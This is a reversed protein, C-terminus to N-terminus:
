NNSPGTKVEPNDMKGSWIIRWMAGPVKKYPTHKVQAVVVRGAILIGVIGFISQIILLAVLVKHSASPNNSYGLAESILPSILWIPIWWLLIFVVGLRLRFAGNPSKDLKDM